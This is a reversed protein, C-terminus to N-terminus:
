LDEEFDELSEGFEEELEKLKRRARRFDIWLPLIVLCVASIWGAITVLISPPAPAEPPNFTRKSPNGGPTVGIGPDAHVNTISTGSTTFALYLKLRKEEPMYSYTMPAPGSVGDVEAQSIWFYTGETLEKPESYKPLFAIQQPERIGKVFNLEATSEEQRKIVTYGADQFQFDHYYRKSSKSWLEHELAIGNVGLPQSLGIQFDIKLQTGGEIGFEENGIKVKRDAATFLLQITVNALRVPDGSSREIIPIDRYNVSWNVYEGFTKDRDQPTITAAEVKARNEFLGYYFSKGTTFWGREVDVYGHLALYQCYFKTMSKNDKTYYWEFLLEKYYFNVTMIDNKLTIVDPSDKSITPRYETPTVPYANPHNWNSAYYVETTWTDEVINKGTENKLLYDFVFNGDGANTNKYINESDFLVQLEHIGVDFYEQANGTLIPNLGKFLLTGRITYRGPENVEIIFTIVLSDYLHPHQPNPMGEDDVALIEAPPEGQAISVMGPFFTMAVLMSAVIITTLSKSM